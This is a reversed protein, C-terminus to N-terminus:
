FIKEFRADSNIIIDPNSEVDLAYEQWNIFNTTAHVSPIGGLGDVIASGSINDIIPQIQEPLDM